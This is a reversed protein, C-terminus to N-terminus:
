SPHPSPPSVEELIGGASGGLTQVEDILAQLAETGGMSRIEESRRLLSPPLGAPRDLADLSGPLNLKETIPTHASRPRATTYRTIETDMQKVTGEVEEKIWNDRRDVYVEELFKLLSCCLVWIV